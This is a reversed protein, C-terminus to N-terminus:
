QWETVRSVPCDIDANLLMVVHQDSLDLLPAWVCTRERLRYGHEHVPILHALVSRPLPLRTNAELCARTKHGLRETV